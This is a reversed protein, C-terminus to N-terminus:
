VGGDDDLDNEDLSVDDVHDGDLDGEDVYDDDLDYDDDVYDDDLDNEDDVDYYSTPPLPRCLHNFELFQKFMTMTMMMM